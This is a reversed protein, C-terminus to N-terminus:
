ESAEQIGLIKRVWRRLNKKVAPDLEQSKEVSRALLEDLTGDPIGELPEALSERYDEAEQELRTLEEPTIGLSEAIEERSEEARGGFEPSNKM